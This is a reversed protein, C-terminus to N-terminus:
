KQGLNHWLIHKLNVQELLTQLYINFSHAILLTDIRDKYKYIVCVHNTFPNIKLNQIGCQICEWVYFIERKQGHLKGSYLVLGHFFWSTRNICCIIYCCRNRKKEIYMVHHAYYSKFQLM